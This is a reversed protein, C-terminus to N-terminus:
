FYFCVDGTSIYIYNKWHRIVALSSGNFHHQARGKVLVDYYRCSHYIPEGKIANIALRNPRKVQFRSHLPEFGTSLILQFLVLFLLHGSFIPRLQIFSNYFKYFSFYFFFVNKKFDNIIILLIM